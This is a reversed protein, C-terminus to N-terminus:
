ALRSDRISAICRIETRDRPRLVCAFLIHPPPSPCIHKEKNHIALAVRVIQMHGQFIPNIHGFYFGEVISGNCTGDAKVHMWRKTNRNLIGASFPTFRFAPTM